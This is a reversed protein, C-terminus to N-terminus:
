PQNSENKKPEQDPPILWEIDTPDIWNGDDTEWQGLFELLEQFSPDVAQDPNPTGTSPAEKKDAAGAPTIVMLCIIGIAITKVPM